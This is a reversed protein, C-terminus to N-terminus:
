GQSLKRVLSCIKRPGRVCMWTQGPSSACSPDSMWRVKDHKDM